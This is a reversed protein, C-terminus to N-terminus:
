TATFVIRITGSDCEARVATVSPFVTDSTYVAVSGHPWDLAQATNTDCKVLSDNTIQIKGSGAPNPFLATEIYQIGPPAQYWDSVQGATLIVELQYGRQERDTFTTTLKKFQQTAM